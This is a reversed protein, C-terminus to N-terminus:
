LKRKPVSRITLAQKFENFEIFGSSDDDIGDFFADIEKKPAEYGPIRGSSLPNTPM